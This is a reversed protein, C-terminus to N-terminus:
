RLPYQLGLVGQWVKPHGVVRYEARISLRDDIALRAGLGAVPVWAREEAHVSYPSGMPYIDGTAIAYVAGLRLFGYGWDTLRKELVGSFMFGRARVVRDATFAENFGSITIRGDTHVLHEFGEVVGVEASGSLGYASSRFFTRGLQVEWTPSSNKVNYEAKAYDQMQAFIPEEIRDIGSIRIFSRGGSGVLYWDSAFLPAAFLALLLAILTKRM